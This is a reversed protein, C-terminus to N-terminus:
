AYTFLAPSDAKIGKRRGIAEDIKGPERSHWLGLQQSAM